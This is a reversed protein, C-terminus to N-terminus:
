RQYPRDRYLKVAAELKQLQEANLPSPLRRIGIREYFWPQKGPHVELPAKGQAEIFAALEYMQPGDADMSWAPDCPVDRDFHLPRQSIHAYYRFSGSDIVYVKGSDADKWVIGTHDWPCTGIANLGPTRGTANARALLLDGTRLLHAVEALPVPTPKFGCREWCCLTLSDCGALCGDTM